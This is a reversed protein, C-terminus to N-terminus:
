VHARGIQAKAEPGISLVSTVDQAEDRAGPLSVDNPALPMAMTPMGARPRGTSVCPEPWVTALGCRHPNCGMVGRIARRPTIPQSRFAGVQMRPGARAAGIQPM